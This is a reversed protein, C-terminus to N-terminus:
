HSLHWSVLGTDNVLLIRSTEEYIEIISVSAPSIEIRHLIDMHIGAYYGIASKIMDAHSVVAVTKGAYLSHLHEIGRIIRMQAGSMNEGGPIRTGSRFYNFLKFQCDRKLDEIAGNTWDGFDIELFDDSVIVSLNHHQAIPGATQVARELPSSFIAAFPIDSLRQALKIAQKKGEENLLVGPMRGSLNKGTHDTLAHRILFIKIM